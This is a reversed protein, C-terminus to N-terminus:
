IADMDKNIYVHMCINMISINYFFVSAHNYM